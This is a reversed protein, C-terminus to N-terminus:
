LTAMMAAAAAAAAAAGAAATLSHHLTGLLLRCEVIDNEVLHM